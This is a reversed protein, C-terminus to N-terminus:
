TRVTLKLSPFGGNKMLFGKSFNFCNKGSFLTDWFPLITEWGGPPYSNAVIREQPLSPQHNAFRTKYHRSPLVALAKVKRSNCCSGFILNSPAFPLLSSELSKGLMRKCSIRCFIQIYGMDAPQKSNWDVTHLM